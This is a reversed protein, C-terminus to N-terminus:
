NYSNMSYRKTSPFIFFSLAISCSTNSKNFSIRSVQASAMFSALPIGASFYFFGDASAPPKKAPVFSNPVPLSCSFRLIQPYSHPNRNKSCSYLSYLSPSVPLLVSCLSVSSIGSTVSLVNSRPNFLLVPTSHPNRLVTKLLLPPLLPLTRFLASFIM